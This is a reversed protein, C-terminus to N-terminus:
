PHVSQTNSYIFGHEGIGVKFTHSLTDLYFFVYNILVVINRKKESTKNIYIYIYIKCM